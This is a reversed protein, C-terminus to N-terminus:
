EKWRRNFMRTSVQAGVVTGGPISYGLLDFPEDGKDSHPVVRELLSPVATYLRLASSFQDILFTHCSCLRSPEGEKLVANLYPLKQLTSMSLTGTGVGNLEDRLMKVIDPRRTLTFCLFSLTAATTDAGAIRTVGDILWPVSLFQFNRM